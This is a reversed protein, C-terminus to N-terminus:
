REVGWDIGGKMRNKLYIEKKAQKSLNTTKKIRNYYANHSTNEESLMKFIDNIIQRANRSEMIKIQNDENIKIVGQIKQYEINKEIWEQKKQIYDDIKVDKIIQLIQNGMKNFMEKEALRRVKEYDKKNEIQSLLRAINISTQIYENFENKCDESTNLILKSLNNIYMKTEPKQYQYKFGREFNSSINKLEVIKNLIISFNKERFKNSIIPIGFIDPMIEKLNNKVDIDEQKKLSIYKELSEKSRHVKLDSFNALFLATDVYSDERYLIAQEGYNKFEFKDEAVKKIETFNTPDEIDSIYIYENTKLGKLSDIITQEERDIDIIRLKMDPNKYFEKLDNKYKELEENTMSAIRKKSVNKIDYLTQLRIKFISKALAKRVRKYFVFPKKQIQLNQNKNWLLLHSHPNNKKSHYSATWELDETKIGFEKGIEQVRELLLDKWASKTTYGYQIADKESLSIVTKYIDVGDLTKNAVYKKIDKLEMKEVNSDERIYGFLGHSDEGLDTGPRTAIYDEHLEDLYAQLRRARGKNDYKAYIEKQNLWKFMVGDSFRDKDM